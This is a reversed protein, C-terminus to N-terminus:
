RFCNYDQNRNPTLRQLRFPLFCYRQPQQLHSNAVTGYKNTGIVSSSGIRVRRDDAVIVVACPKEGDIETLFLVGINLRAYSLDKDKNFRAYKEYLTIGDVNGKVPNHIPGIFQFHNYGNKIAYDAAEMLYNEEVDVPNAVSIGRVKKILGSKM